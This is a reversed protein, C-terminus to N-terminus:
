ALALPEFLM